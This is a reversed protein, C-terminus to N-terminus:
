LRCQSPRRGPQALRRQLDIAPGTVVSLCDRDQGRDCHQEHGTPRSRAMARILPGARLIEGETGPGQGLSQSLERRGLLPAHGSGWRGYGSRRPRLGHARRWAVESAVAAGPRWRGPWVPSPYRDLEHEVVLLASLPVHLVPIRSRFYEKGLDQAGARVGRAM